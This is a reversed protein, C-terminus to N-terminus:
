APAKGLETTPEQKKEKGLFHYIEPPPKGVAVITGSVYQLPLFLGCSSVIAACVLLAQSTM